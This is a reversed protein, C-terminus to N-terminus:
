DETSVSTITTGTNATLAVQKATTESIAGQSLKINDDAKEQTGEDSKATTDQAEKVNQPIMSATPGVSVFLSPPIAVISPSTSAFTYAGSVTLVLASAM